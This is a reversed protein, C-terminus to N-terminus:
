FLGTRELELAAPVRHDLDGNPTGLQSDLFLIHNRQSEILCNLLVKIPLPHDTKVLGEYLVTTKTEKGYAFDFAEKFTTLPSLEVDLLYSNFSSGNARGASDAPVITDFRNMRLKNIVDRKLCALQSFLIKQSRLQLYTLANEYMEAANITHYYVFNFYPKFLKEEDDSITADLKSYSKSFDIDARYNSSM